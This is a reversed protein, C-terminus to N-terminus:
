GDCRREGGVMMFVMSVCGAAIAYGLASGVPTGFVVLVAFVALPVGLHYKLMHSRM